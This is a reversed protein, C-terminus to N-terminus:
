SPAPFQKIVTSSFAEMQDLVEERRRPIEDHEAIV